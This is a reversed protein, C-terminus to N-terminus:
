AVNPLGCSARLMSFWLLGRHFTTLRLEKSDTHELAPVKSASFRGTGQPEADALVQGVGTELRDDMVLRLPSFDITYAVLQCGFWGM